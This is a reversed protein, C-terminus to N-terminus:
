ALRAVPQVIEDRAKKGKRKRMEVLLILRRRMTRHRIIVAGAAGSETRRQCKVRSLAFCCSLPFTESLLPVALTEKTCSM